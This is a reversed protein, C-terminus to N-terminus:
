SENKSKKTKEFPLLFSFVTEKGPVSHAELTTKHFSAIQEALALGLGYGKHASRASDARYFREFVHPLHESAIGEGQNAVQITIKAAQPIVRVEIPTDPPSYKLANDILISLLEEISAQHAITTVTEDPLTLIVRSDIKNFREVIAQLPPVIDFSEHTLQTTKGSSLSLLTSSLGTLRKVEELNSELAERLDKKTASTDQLAVELEISMAALPTRLEHSADSVFRAQAEHADEIPRLTRRALLYSFCGGVALVALNLYVLVGIIATKSENLEVSRVRELPSAGQSLELLSWSKDQYSTLRREVEGASIQYLMVSFLLSICALILLYWGTLRLTASAFLQKM